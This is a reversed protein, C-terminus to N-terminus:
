PMVEFWIANEDNNPNDRYYVTIEEGKRIPKKCKFVLMSKDFDKIYVANPADAHNYLSRYGLAIAARDRKPGWNFYYSFLATRNILETDEESCEVIHCEEIVEGVYFDKTAFVGRGKNRTNKIEISNVRAIGTETLSEIKSGGNPNGVAGLDPVIENYYGFCIKM